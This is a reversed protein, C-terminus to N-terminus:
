TKKRKMNKQSKKNTEKKVYKSKKIKQSSTAAVFIVSHMILPISSHISLGGALYIPVHTVCVYVYRSSRKKQHCSTHHHGVFLCFHLVERRWRCALLVFRNKQILLTKYFCLQASLFFFVSSKNMSKKSSM